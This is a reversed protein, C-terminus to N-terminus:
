SLIASFIYKINHWSLHQIIANNLVYNDDSFYTFGNSLMPIYALFGLALLLGAQVKVTISIGFIKETKITHIAATKKM